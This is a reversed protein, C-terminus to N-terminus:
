GYALLRGFETRFQKISAARNSQPEPWGIGPFAPDTELSDHAVLAVAQRVANGHAGDAISPRNGIHDELARCLNHVSACVDDKNCVCPYQKSAAEILGLDRDSRMTRLRELLQMEAGRYFVVPKRAAVAYAVECVTGPGGALALVADATLANVPDRQAGNLHSKVLLRAGTSFRETCNIPVPSSMPPVGIVRVPRGNSLAGAVAVDPAEGFPDFGLTAPPDHGTLLILDEAAIAMGLAYADESVYKRRPGRNAESKGGVVAIVAPRM